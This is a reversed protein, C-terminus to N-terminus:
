GSAAISGGDLVEGALLGKRIGNLLVSVERNVLEAAGAVLVPLYNPTFGRTMGTAEDRKEEILV